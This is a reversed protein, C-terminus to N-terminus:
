PTHARGGFLRAAGWKTVLWMAEVVIRGRMKSEGYVRDRFVVPVETIRLGRRAARWTMEVQFGYGSAQCTDAELDALAEARFARFGATADNVPLGLMLRAYLNGGRSLIRRHLPWDPTAGGPVYRSGIALDARDERIEDILRPLDDPNHSFDADMECIVRARGAQAHRFGHAYAPGLGQKQQRHLVEVHDQRVALQDALDGTGDPSADDVILVRYGHALVAEVITELNARENYTPVVVTVQDTRM